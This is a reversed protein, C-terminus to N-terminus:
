KRQNVPNTCHFFTTTGSKSEKVDAFNNLLGEISIKGDGGTFDTVSLELVDVLSLELFTRLFNAGGELLIESGFENIAKKLSQAPPLDWWHALPNKDLIKPRSRSVIVLAVPSTTYPEQRASEGGVLICNVGRRRALFQLRDDTTSIAGSSGEFSTSGDRGLVLTATVGM